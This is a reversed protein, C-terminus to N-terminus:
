KEEMCSHICHEMPAGLVVRKLNAVKHAIVDAAKEREEDRAEKEGSQRFEEKQEETWDRKMNLKKPLIDRPIRLNVQFDPGNLLDETYWDPHTKKM